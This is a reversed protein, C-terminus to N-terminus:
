FCVTFHTSNVWELETKHLYLMKNQQFNDTLASKETLTM